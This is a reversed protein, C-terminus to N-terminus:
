ITWCVRLRAATSSNAHDVTGWGRVASMMLRFDRLPRSTQLCVIGLCPFVYLICQTELRTGVQGDTHRNATWCSKRHPHPMKEWGCKNTPRCLGRINELCFYQAHFQHTAISSVCAKFAKFAKFSTLTAPLLLCLTLAAAESNYPSDSTVDIQAQQGCSPFDKKHEM